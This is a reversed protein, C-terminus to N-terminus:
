AADTIALEDFEGADFRKMFDTVPKGFDYDMIQSDNYCIRGPQFQAGPWLSARPTFYFAIPCYLAHKRLGKIGAAILNAAVSEASDGLTREIEKLKAM